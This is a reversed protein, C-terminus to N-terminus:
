SPSKARIFEESYNGKMGLPAVQISWISWGTAAHIQEAYRTPIYHDEVWHEIEIEEVGLKSAVASKGGMIEIVCAVDNGGVHYMQNGTVPNIDILYDLGSVKLYDFNVGPMVQM